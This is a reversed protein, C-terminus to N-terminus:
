STSIIACKDAGPNEKKFSAVLEEAQKAAEEETHM